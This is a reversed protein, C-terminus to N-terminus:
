GGKKYVIALIAVVLAGLSILTNVNVSYKKRVEAKGEDKGQHSAQCQIILAECDESKKKAQEADALAHHLKEYLGNYKAMAVRTETLEKNTVDLKAFAINFSDNMQDFRQLLFQILAEPQQQPIQIKSENMSM